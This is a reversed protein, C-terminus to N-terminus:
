GFSSVSGMNEEAKKSATSAFTFIAKGLNEIFPPFINKSPIFWIPLFGNQLYGPVICPLVLIEFSSLTFKRKNKSFKQSFNECFHDTIKITFGLCSKTRINTTLTLFRCFYERLASENYSLDQFLLFKVGKHGNCSSRCVHKKIM